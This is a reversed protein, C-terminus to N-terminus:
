SVVSLACSSVVEGGMENFILVSIEDANNAFVTLEEIMSDSEPLTVELVPSEDNVDSVWDEQKLLQAAAEPSISLGDTRETMVEDCGEESIWIRVTLM